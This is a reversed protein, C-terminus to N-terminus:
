KQIRPPRFGYTPNFKHPANLGPTPIFMFPTTATGSDTAGESPLQQQTSPQSNPTTAQQLPPQVTPATAQQQSHHVTPAPPRTIAQKPRFNPGQPLATPTAPNSPQTNSDVGELPPQAPHSSQTDVRTEQQVSHTNSTKPVKKKQRKAKGVPDISPATVNQPVNSGVGEGAQAEQQDPPPQSSQNETQQQKAKKRKPQWNPNAPAGKCTMHYHGKQGCKSCTVQFSKRVNHGQQQMQSEAVVDVARKKTPRGPPRRIIPAEPRLRNTEEWFEESNVPKISDGYTARVVDMTLWKHAFDEPKLGQKRLRSIAAVAHKCPLGTLQWVNCACTHRQLNVAVRTQYRQVEFLVRTEDGAWEATWKNSMKRMIYSRLEECMTLIPKERYEVIKANWVECMNNTINDCKPGHSFYAKTWSGPDFKQLYEWATTNMKKVLEM